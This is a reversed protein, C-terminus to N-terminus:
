PQQHNRLSLSRTGFAKLNKLRTKIGRLSRSAYRATVRKVQWLNTKATNVGFETTCGTAYGADRVADRISENYDGYPYCFHRISVGFLDELKKKSANIEERAQASPIQTLLPHTLTHAGIEHGAALWDRIQAADMLREPVEGQRMEWDNLQGLRDAVLFEIARFGHRQMPEVAHRLANEFGDDFTLTIAPASTKGPECLAELTQTRFGAQHLEAMQQAFLKPSVYLGKLRAGWPRPGVKHYTLVPAGTAFLERFPALRTYYAPTLTSM